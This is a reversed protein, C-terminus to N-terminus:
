GLHVKVPVVTVGSGALAAGRAFLVWHVEQFGGILPPVAVDVLWADDDILPARAVFAESVVQLFPAIVVREARLGFSGGSADARRTDDYGRVVRDLLAERLRLVVKREEAAEFDFVEAIM